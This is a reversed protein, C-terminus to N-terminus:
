NHKANTDWGQEHSLSNTSIEGWCDQHTQWHYSGNKSTTREHIYHWYGIVQMTVSFSSTFSSSHDSSNDQKSVGIPSGITSNADDIPYLSKDEFDKM